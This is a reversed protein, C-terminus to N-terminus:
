LREQSLYTGHDGPAPLAPHWSCPVSQSPLQVPLRAQREARNPALVVISIFGLDLASAIKLM